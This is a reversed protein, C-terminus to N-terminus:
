IKMPSKTSRCEELQQGLLLSREKTPWCQSCRKLLTLQGMSIRYLFISVTPFTFQVVEPGFDDGKAAVGANNIIVDIQNFKGKINPVFSAISAPDSVDLKELFLKANPFKTQIENKAVEGLELNRVAMIINWNDKSALNEAIAFGIGKNSGTVIVNRLQQM